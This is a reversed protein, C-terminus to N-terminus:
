MEKKKAQDMTPMKDEVKAKVKVEGANKFVLTIESEDGQTMAQNLKILMVHHQMPKFVVVKGPAIPLKDVERMGMKGDEKFTEHVETKESLDSKAGILTDPENTNNIIRFFVGTNRDKGAPRIWADVVQLGKEISDMSAKEQVAEKKTPEEVKKASKEEVDKKNECGVFIMLAALLVILKKM